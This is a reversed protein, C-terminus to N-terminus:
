KIKYVKAPRGATAGSVEGAEELLHGIKRRINSNDTENLKDANFTNYVERFEKLSFTSGLVNMVRLDYNLKNAVRTLAIHVIYQHDFAFSLEGSLRDGSERDLVLEKQSSKLVFSGDALTDITVWEFDKADDGVMVEPVEPLFVMYAITIVRQRLDREPATFTQLQEIHNVTLKIGTEEQTERICAQDSSEAGDIFGGVLALSDKFPHAKRRIFLLKLQNIERDFCFIMNDVTVAPNQYNKSDTEQYWKLFTEESSEQEMYKKSKGIM